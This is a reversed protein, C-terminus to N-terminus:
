SQTRKTKVVSPKPALQQMSWREPAEGGVPPESWKRLRTDVEDVTLIQTEKSRYADSTRQVEYLGEKLKVKVWWGDGMHRGVLKGTAAFEYPTGDARLGHVNITGDEELLVEMVGAGRTGDGACYSNDASISVLGPQQVVSPTDGSPQHGGCVAVVGSRNLFEVADLGLYHPGNSGVLPHVVISHPVFSVPFAYQRLFMGGGSEMWQRFGEEKFENLANVWEEASRKETMFNQRKGGEADLISQREPVIGANEDDVIGHVFLAGDIVEAINGRRLYEYYVGEPRAADLFSQAVEEDTVNRGHLRKLERRRCEFTEMGGMKYALAWQLFTVKTVTPPLGKGKLYEAYPMWQKAGRTTALDIPFVLRQAEEPTVGAEELMKATPAGFAMKNIDRNGLILHVRSPYADHFDLLVKAFTMDDGRDFVDGGYVFHSANDCFSLGDNRWTVVRSLEVYRRFYSLDGEVDTLFATRRHLGCRRLM